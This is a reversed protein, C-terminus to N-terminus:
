NDSTISGQIMRKAVVLQTMWPGDPMLTSLEHHLSVMAPWLGCAPQISSLVQVTQGFLIEPRFISNIILGQSCYQPYGIMGTQRAFLPPSGHIDDEDISDGVNYLYLVGNQLSISFNGDIRVRDLQTMLDGHYHPNNLSGSVGCNVVERIPPNISSDGGSVNVNINNANLTQKFNYVIARVVDVKSVSGEFSVTPSARLNFGGAPQSQIHFVPNPAQNNDLYAVIISGEFVKIYFPHDPDSNDTSAYVIIQNCFVSSMVNYMGLTSLINTLDPPLNYIEATMQSMFDGGAMTISVTARFGEISLSSGGNGDLIIRQGKQDVGGLIEFKLHRKNLFSRPPAKAVVSTVAEDAM